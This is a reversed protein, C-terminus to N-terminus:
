HGYNFGIWFSNGTLPNTVKQNVEGCCSITNSYEEDWGSGNIVKSVRCSDICDDEKEIEKYLSSLQNCLWKFDDYNGTSKSVIEGYIEENFVTM